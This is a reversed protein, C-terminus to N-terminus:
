SNRETKKKHADEGRLMSYLPKAILAYNQIHRKFYGVLGLFSQLQGVEADPRPFNLVAEVKTPDLSVGERSIVFGLFKLKKQFFKCKEIKLRLGAKRMREFTMQLHHIHEKATQSFIIIDDMYVLMHQKLYDAFVLNMLRQFVAPSTKLGMPLHVFEFRGIDTSFALKHTDEEKICIHYFGWFLDGSSM